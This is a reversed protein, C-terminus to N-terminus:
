VWGVVHVLDGSPSARGLQSICRPDPDWLFSYVLTVTPLFLPLLIASSAVYRIDAVESTADFYPSYGAYAVFPTLLINLTPFFLVTAFLAALFRMVYLASMTSVAGSKFMQWLSLLTTGIVVVAGLALTRYAHVFAQEGLREIHLITYGAAHRPPCRAHM